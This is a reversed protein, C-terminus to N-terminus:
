CGQRGSDITYGLGLTGSSSDYTKTGSCSVAASAPTAM